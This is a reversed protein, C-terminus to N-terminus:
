VSERVLLVPELTPKLAVAFVVLQPLLQITKDCVDPAVGLVRVTCTLVVPRIAPAQVPSISMEAGEAAFGAIAIGTPNRTLV